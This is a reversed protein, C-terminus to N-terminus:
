NLVENLFDKVIGNIEDEDDDNIGIFARQEITTASNRGTEGGFQHIAAYIMDSGHEVSDDSPIHTISDRLHTKNVLTKGGEQKARESEIWPVGEPDVGEKFRQTVSSDLYSGIEDFMEYSNFNEINKMARMVERDDIKYELKIGSM